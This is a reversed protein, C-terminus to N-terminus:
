ADELLQWLGGVVAYRDYDEGKARSQDAYGWAVVELFRKVNSHNLAGTSDEHAHAREILHGLDEADRVLVDLGSQKATEAVLRAFHPNQSGGGTLLISCQPSQTWKRACSGFISRLVPEYVPVTCAFYTEQRKRLRGRHAALIEAHGDSTVRKGAERWATGCSVKLKTYTESDYAPRGLSTSFSQSLAEGGCSAESRSLRTLLTDGDFVTVDLTLGGADLVVVHEIFEPRAVLQQMWDALSAVLAEPKPRSPLSKKGIGLLWPILKNNNALVEQKKKQYHAQASKNRAKILSNKEVEEQHSGLAAARLATLAGRYHSAVAEHEPILRLIGARGDGRTTHAYVAHRLGSIADLSLGELRKRSRVLCKALLEVDLGGTAPLSLTVSQLFGGRAAAERRLSVLLQAL